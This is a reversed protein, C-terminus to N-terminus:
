EATEDSADQVGRKLRSSLAQPTIGLLAAAVNQKGSTRRMAERILDQVAQRITPLEDEPRYVRAFPREFEDTAPPEIGLIAAMEAGGLPAERSDIRARLVISRLERVNGPFAYRGLVSLAEPTLLSDVEGLEAEDAFHQVLLPIDEPRSRLPPIDIRYTYLRFVLDRRFTGENALAALDRNTAAIVRTNSRRIIDSGLPHYERYELFRLLKVQSAPSLEGIEDLFLTGGEASAVLGKRAESAGTYAGKAHGFLTDSVMADDM